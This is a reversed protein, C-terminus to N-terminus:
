AIGKSGGDTLVLGQFLHRLILKLTVASAREHRRDVTPVVQDTEHTPPDSARPSVQGADVGVNCVVYVPYLACDVSSSAASFFAM